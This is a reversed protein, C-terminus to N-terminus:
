INKYLDKNVMKQLENYDEIILVRGEKKIVGQNTLVSIERSVSERNTSVRNAIEAHTPANKIKRKSSSLIEGTHALRALEAHIRSNVDLTTLEIVRDSLQRVLGSLYRFTNRAVSPYRTLINCFEVANLHALTSHSLSIVHASRPEGDIAALEGFIQGAALDRFTIQRGSHSYITIRVTGSLIFYVDNSEEQHSIITDGDEYILFQCLSAIEKRENIAIDAFIQIGSLSASSVCSSPIGM